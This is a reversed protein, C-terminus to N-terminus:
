TRHRAQLLLQATEFDLGFRLDQVTVLVLTTMATLEIWELQITVRRNLLERARQGLGGIVDRADLLKQLVLGFIRLAQQLLLRAGNGLKLVSEHTRAHDRELTVHLTERADHPLSGSIRALPRLENDFTGRTLEIALHQLAHQRRELVHKAIRHHVTDLLRLLSNSSALRLS